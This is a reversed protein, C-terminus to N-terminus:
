LTVAKAPQQQVPVVKKSVTAMVIGQELYTDDFQIVHTELNVGMSEALVNQIANYNQLAEADCDRIFQMQKEQVEDQNKAFASWAEVQEEDLQKIVPKEM